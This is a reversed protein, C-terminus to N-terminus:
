SRPHHKHKAKDSYMLADALEILSDISDVSSLSASYVGFSIQVKFPKGSHDNLDALVEDFREHYKEGRERADGSCVRAVVFEDGGYGGM